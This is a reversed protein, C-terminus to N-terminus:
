SFLAPFSSVIWPCILKVVRFIWIVSNQPTALSNQNLVKITPFHTKVKHPKKLMRMYAWRKQCSSHPLKCGGLAQQLVHVVWRGCPWPFNRGLSPRQSSNQPFSLVHNYLVQHLPPMVYSGWRLHFFLCWRSLSFLVDSLTFTFNFIIAPLM